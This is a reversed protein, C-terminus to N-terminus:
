FKGFLTNMVGIILASGMNTTGNPNFSDFKTQFLQNEPIFVSKQYYMTDRTIHYRDNLQTTSNYISFTNEPVFKLPSLLFKQGKLQFFTSNIASTTNLKPKTVFLNLSDQAVIFLPFLLLGFVISKKM